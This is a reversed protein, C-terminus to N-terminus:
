CNIRDFSQVTGYTSVALKGFMQPYDACWQRFSHKIKEFVERDKTSVGSV